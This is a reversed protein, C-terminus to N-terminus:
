SDFLICSPDILFLTPQVNSLRICPEGPSLRWSCYGLGSLFTMRNMEVYKTRRKGISEPRLKAHGLFGLSVPPFKSPLREEETNENVICTVAM